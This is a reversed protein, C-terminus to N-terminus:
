VAKWGQHFGQKGNDTSINVETEVTIGGRSRHDSQDSAQSPATQTFRNKHDGAIIEEESENRETRLASVNYPDKVPRFGLRSAKANAISGRSLEHSEYGNSRKNSSYGSSGTPDDSWFRRTFLPRVM